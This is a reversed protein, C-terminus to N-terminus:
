ARRFHWRWQFLCVSKLAGTVWVLESFFCLLIVFSQVFKGTYVDMLGPEVKVLWVQACERNELEIIYLTNM